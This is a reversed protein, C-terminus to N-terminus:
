PAKSLTIWASKPKVFRREHKHDRAVRCRENLRGPRLRPLQTKSGQGLREVEEGCDPGVQEVRGEHEGDGHPEPAALQDAEAPRVEVEILAHVVDAPLGLAAM